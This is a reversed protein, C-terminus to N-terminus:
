YKLGYRDASRFLIADANLVVTAASSSSNICSIRSPCILARMSECLLTCDGICACLFLPNCLASAQNECDDDEVQSRDCAPRPTQPSPCCLQHLQNPIEGPPTRESVATSRTVPRRGNERSMIQFEESRTRSPCLGAFCLMRSTMTSPCPTGSASCPVGIIHQTTHTKYKQTLEASDRALEETM